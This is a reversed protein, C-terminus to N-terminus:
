NLRRMWSPARRRSPAAPRRLRETWTRACVTQVGIAPIILQVPRPSTLVLGAAGAFAVLAGAAVAVALTVRKDALVTV